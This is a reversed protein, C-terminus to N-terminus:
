ALLTRSDVFQNTDSNLVNVKGTVFDYVWGQLQLDGADVAAAVKPFTMLNHLQLRVNAQVARTLWDEAQESGLEALAPQSLLVWRAVEPLSVLAEQNLLGQMAGCKAHGCVIIQPVKLVKIAYEITAAMGLDAQQQNGVINGANRVVFLEGPRSNTLVEPVVRSDSCTIFLADPSQGSALEEFRPQMKPFTHNQFQSVGVLLDRM